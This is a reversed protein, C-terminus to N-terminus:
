CKKAVDLIKELLLVVQFKNDIPERGLKHPAPTQEQNSVAFQNAHM